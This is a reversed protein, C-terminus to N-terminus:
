AASNRYARGSTSITEVVSEVMAEDRRIIDILFNVNEKTLKKEEAYYTGGDTGLILFRELRTQDSVQFVFGGANNVVQDPRAQETQTAPTGLARSFASNAM